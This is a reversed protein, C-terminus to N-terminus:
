SQLETSRGVRAVEARITQVTKPGVGAAVHENRDVVAALQDVAAFTVKHGLFRSAIRSVHQPDGTTLFRCRPVRDMESVDPRFEPHRKLYEGLSAAVLDPQSLVEVGVPLFRDFLPAILPYHTCGLVVTDLAQGNLSGRLATVYGEVLVALESEDAGAEIAGALAPCAQQVVTIAPARKTIEAPFSRSQVTHVTAFIGVTAPQSSHGPSAEQVFWPVRTIAEVMPVIVGLIRREPYHHPLWNQQLHRLAVAAATNCAIIVLRCGKGFLREIGSRTFELVAEASHAGYPAHGHDGLYLFNLEPFHNTLARQVTLGGHGSDFVGIM